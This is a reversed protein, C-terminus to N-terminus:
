GNTKWYIWAVKTDVGDLVTGDPGADKEAIRLVGDRLEQANEDESFYHRLMYDAMEEPTRPDAWNYDTHTVEPRYGAEEALRVMTECDGKLDGFNSRPELGLQRMLSDRYPQKWDLFRALFCWGHTISSMKRVTELDCVAPSMTSIAFDFGGAFAPEQISVAHFDCPVVKWPTTYKSMNDAAHRLMAESIDTLTVECGLEALLTGYRGVGCGIDIVRDGPRFMGKEKWFRFLSANYDSLGLTFVRQYDKAVLDWRERDTLMEM